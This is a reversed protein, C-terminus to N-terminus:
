AKDDFSRIDSEFFCYNEPFSHFATPLILSGIIFLVETPHEFKFMRFSPSYNSILWNREVFFFVM